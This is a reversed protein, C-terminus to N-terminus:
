FLWEAGVSGNWGVWPVSFGEINPSFYFEHRLLPLSAGLAAGLRIPGGFPTAAVRVSPGFALWPARRPEAQVVTSGSGNGTLAGADLDLCPRLWFAATGLLRVPCASASALLSTFRVTAGGELAVESTELRWVSLEFWPAWLEGHGYELTVGAGLGLAPEPGMASRIGGLLVAGIRYVEASEGGTETRRPVDVPAGPEPASPLRLEFAATAPEPASDIRLAVLLALAEVLASCSTDTVESTTTKAGAAGITLQSIWGGRETQNADRRAIEISVRARGLAELAGSLRQEVRDRFRSASPCGAPARYSGLWAPPTEANAASPLVGSGLVLLGFSFFWRCAFARESFSPLTRQRYL